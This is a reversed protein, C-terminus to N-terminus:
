NAARTLQNATRTGHITAFRVSVKDGPKYGATQIGSALRFTEGDALKLKKATVYAIRGDITQETSTQTNLKTVPAALATMPAAASLLVLSAIAAKSTLKM